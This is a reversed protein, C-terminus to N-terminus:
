YFYHSLPLLLILACVKWFWVIQPDNEKYGNYDTHARWESVSIPSPSGFLMLDLDELELSGFFLGQNSTNDLIDAFGKTFNSIQEAVSTVFRNKILLYVYKERNQSNVVIDKGNACLEADKRSGLEDVERVFTLGLADSDVFAADMQLIQKCSKYLDPDADKIDELTIDRGALQSFFSRDLVVGVQVRHMLALAIVRGAFTFYELHLPDM